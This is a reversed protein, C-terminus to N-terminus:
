NQCQHVLVDVNLNNLSAGVIAGERKFHKSANKVM